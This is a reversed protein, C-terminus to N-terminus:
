WSSSLRAERGKCPLLGDVPVGFSVDLSAPDRSGVLQELPEQISQARFRLLDDPSGLM